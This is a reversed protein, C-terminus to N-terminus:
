GTTALGLAKGKELAAVIAKLEQKDEYTTAFRGIVMEVRRSWRDVANYGFPINQKICRELYRRMDKALLSFEQTIEPESFSTIGWRALIRILTTTIGLFIPGRDHSGRAATIM